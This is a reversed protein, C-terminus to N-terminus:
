ESLLRGVSEIASNKLSVPSCQGAGRGCRIEGLVPTRM